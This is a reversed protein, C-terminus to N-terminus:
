DQPHVCAQIDKRVRPLQHRVGSSRRQAVLFGSPTVVIAVFVLVVVFALLVLAVFFAEAGLTALGAAFALFAGVASVFARRSALQALDGGSFAYQGFGFLRHGTLRHDLRHRGLPVPRAGAPLRGLGREVGRQQPLDPVLPSVRGELLGTAAQEGEVALSEESRTGFRVAPANARKRATRVM